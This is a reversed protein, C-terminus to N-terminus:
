ATRRRPAVAHGSRDPLFDVSSGGHDASLRSSKRAHLRVLGAALIQGIFLTVSASAAFVLWDADGHAADVVAPLCMAAALVSVLWGVWFLVPSFDFM